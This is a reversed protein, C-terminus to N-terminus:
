CIASVKSMAISIVVKETVDKVSCFVIELGVDDYASVATEEGADNLTEVSTNITGNVSESMLLM